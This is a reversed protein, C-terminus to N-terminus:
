SAVPVLPATVTPPPVGGVGVGVTPPGCMVMPLAFPAALACTVTGIENVLFPTFITVIAGNAYVNSGLTSVNPPHRFAGPTLLPFDTFAAIGEAPFIVTTTDPSRTTSGSPSMTSQVNVIALLRWRNM